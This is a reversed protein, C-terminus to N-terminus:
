DIESNLNLIQDDNNKLTKLLEEKELNFSNLKTKSELLEEELNSIKNTAFELKADTEKMKNEASSLSLKLEEIKEYNQKLEHDKQALIKEFDEIIENPDRPKYPWDESM